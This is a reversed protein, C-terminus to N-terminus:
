HKTYSSRGGARGVAQGVATSATATRYDNLLRNDRSRPVGETGWFAGIALHSEGGGNTKFKYFVGVAAVGNRADAFTGRAFNQNGGFIVSPGDRCNGFAGERATIKDDGDDNGVGNHANARGGERATGRKFAYGERTANCRNTVARKFVARAENDDDNALTSRANALRCERATYRETFDGNGFAKGDYTLARKVATLRKYYGGSKGSNGIAPLYSIDGDVETM